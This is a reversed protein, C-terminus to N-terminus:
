EGVWTFEGNKADVMLEAFNQFSMAGNIVAAFSQGTYAGSGRNAAVADYFDDVSSGRKEIFTELKRELMAKFDNYLETHELEFEGGADAFTRCNDFVFKRVADELEPSENYYNFVDRILAGGGSSGKAEGDGKSGKAGDDDDYKGESKSEM